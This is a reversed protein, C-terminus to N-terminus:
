AAIMCVNFDLERESTLARPFGRSVYDTRGFIPDEYIGYQEGLLEELDPLMDKNM